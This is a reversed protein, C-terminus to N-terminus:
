FSFIQQYMLRSLFGAVLLLAPTILVAKQANLNYIDQLATSIAIVTTTICFFSLAHTINSMPGIVRCLIFLLGLPMMAIGTTFLPGAIDIETKGIFKAVLLFGTFVSVVPVLSLIISKLLPFGATEGGFEALFGFFLNWLGQAFLVASAVFIFNFLIGVKLANASGLSSYAKLQGGIPDSVLVKLAQFADQTTAKVHKMADNASVDAAPSSTNSDNQEPSPNNEETM